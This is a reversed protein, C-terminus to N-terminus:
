RDTQYAFRSGVILPDSKSGLFDDSILNQSILPRFKLGRIEPLNHSDSAARRRQGQRWQWQVRVVLGSQAVPDVM